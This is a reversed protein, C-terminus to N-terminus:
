IYNSNYNDMMHGKNLNINTNINTVHSNLSEQKIIFHKKTLNKFIKAVKM